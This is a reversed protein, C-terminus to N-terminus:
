RCVLACARATTHSFMSRVQVLREPVGYHRTGQYVCCVHAGVRSFCLILSPTRVRDNQKPEVHVVASSKVSLSDGNVRIDLSGGSVGEIVGVKGV